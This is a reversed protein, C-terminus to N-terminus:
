QLGGAPRDIQRLARQEVHNALHELFLHTPLSLNALAVGFAACRARHAVPDQRVTDVKRALELPDGGFFLDAFAPDFPTGRHFSSSLLFGGGTQLARSTRDHLMDNSAAVDLIGYASQYQYASRDATDAPFFEHRPNRLAKYREWGRGFIRIPVDPLAELIFTAAVNRHVQDLERTLRWMIDAADPDHADGQLRVRLPAPVHALIVDHHNVVNGDRYAREIADAIGGLLTATPADCRRQWERRIDRPDRINKALVFYEGHFPVPETAAAFLTPYIGAIAPWERPMLRNAANAFAAPGYLHLIFASSQQHNLPNYCPHDAHLCVLPIRLLEWLTQTCGDPVIASGLGQWCFALDIPADQHMEAITLITRVDLPVVQVDHGLVALRQQWERSFYTFPDNEGESWNLIVIRM